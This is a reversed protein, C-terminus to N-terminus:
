YLFKKITNIDWIKLRNYANVLLYVKNFNVDSYNPERKDENSLLRETFYKIQDIDSSRFKKLEIISSHKLKTTNQIKELILYCGQVKLANRSDNSALERVVIAEFTPKKSILKISLEVITSQVKDDPHRSYEDLIFFELLKRFNNETRQKLVYEYAIKAIGRRINPLCEFIAGASMIGEFPAFYISVLEAFKYLEDISLDHPELISYSEVMVKTILLYEFQNYKTRKLYSRLIDLINKKSHNITKAREQLPIWNNQTINSYKTSWFIPLTNNPVNYFFMVTEGSNNWGFEYKYLGTGYKKIVNIQDDSYFHPERKYPCIVNISKISEKINHIGKETGVMSILYCDINTFVSIKKSVREEWFKIFQNGSGIIDDLFVISDFSELEGEEIQDIIKFKSDSINNSTRFLYAIMQGSKGAGGVGIFLSKKLGTKIISILEFYSLQCLINMLEEDFYKIREFLEYAIKQDNPAFQNIWDTIRERDFVNILQNITSKSNYVKFYKDYNIDKVSKAEKIKEKFEELSFLYM